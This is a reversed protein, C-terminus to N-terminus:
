PSPPAIAPAAVSTAKMETVFGQTESDPVVPDAAGHVNFTMNRATLPTNPVIGIGITTVIPVKHLVASARIKGEDTNPGKRTPTNIIRRLSVEDNPNAIIRLYSLADKVEKREYFATGRAIM